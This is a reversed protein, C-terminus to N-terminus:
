GFWEMGLGASFGSRKRMAALEDRGVHSDFGPSDIGCGGRTGCDQQALHTTPQTADALMDYSCSIGRLLQVRSKAGVPRKLKAYPLRPEALAVRRVRYGM